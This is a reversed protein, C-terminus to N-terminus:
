GPSSVVLESPSRGLKLVITGIRHKLEDDTDIRGTITKCAHVVTAHSKDFASAIEFLSGHTLIRCLFMAIQRPLAINQPREKSTMDSMRLGYDDAVVRQIENFSLEPRKELELTDKLVERLIDVTLPRQSLAAYSVASIIAGELQRVNSNINEAIFTLLSDDLKVTSNRQKYRLIAMRTEFDPKEISTTLGQQFRSVLRAELGPIKNLPRDSTMIIQKRANQLTNFTHFFEEQIGAKDALFHIDDILLVDSSRYRKRFENGTNTGISEIFDNLMAESTIYCVKASPNQAQVAHGVAQMIHTKGLGTEGYIFLPNYAGGPNSVVAMSAAHAFSNSPGIIFDTFTYNPNLAMGLRPASSAAVHRKARARREEEGEEDGEDLDEEGDALDYGRKSDVVIRIESVKDGNDIRTADTIYPLYNNEVWMKLMENDVSVTLVSGDLSVPTIVAIWRSFVDADLSSSLRTLATKWIEQHM